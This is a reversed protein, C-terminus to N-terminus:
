PLISLVHRHRVMFRLVLSLYDFRINGPTGPARDRFRTVVRLDGTRGAWVGYYNPVPAGGEGVLTTIFSVHGSDDFPSPVNYFHDFNVDVPTGPAHSGERAVLELQATADSWIGTNNLESIGDGTM